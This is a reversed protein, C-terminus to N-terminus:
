QPSVLQLLARTAHQHRHMAHRLQMEADRLDTEADRLDAAAEAVQLSAPDDLVPVPQVSAPPPPPPPTIDPAAPAPPPPPTINVVAPASPPPAPAGWAFVHSPLARQLPPANTARPAPAIAPRYAAPQLALWAEVEADALTSWDRYLTWQHASVYANNQAQSGCTHPVGTICGKSTGHAVLAECGGILTSSKVNGNCSLCGTWLMVRDLELTTAAATAFAAM